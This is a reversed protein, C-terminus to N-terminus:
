EQTEQIVFQTYTILSESALVLQQISGFFFLYILLFVPHVISKKAPKKLIMKTDDM